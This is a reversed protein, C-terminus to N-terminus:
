TFAWGCFKKPDYFPIISLDPKLNNKSLVDEANFHKGNRKHFENGEYNVVTRKKVTQEFPNFPLKISHEWAGETQSM